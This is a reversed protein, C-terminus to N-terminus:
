NKERPRFLDMLRRRVTEEGGPLMDFKTTNDIEQLIKQGEDDRHMSLLIDKLRIKLTPHLDRRVSVLHRPFMETEAMITLGARRKEDLREYDDNSFAGAAVKNSLVLDIIKGASYAFIYGIEKPAVKADFAPKETLQFGKRLLFVKPLFYGSTSGPDEFAIIKGRLDELGTTESGRTTFLISRYEAMGGKWRRLLLQASGKGNILYTPYPSDMYFDVKKEELLKALQLVTPAVVVRGEITSTPSLKRAVYRVFDWFHEEGEGQPGQFLSGLSITKIRVTGPRQEASKAGPALAILLATMGFVLSIQHRHRKM